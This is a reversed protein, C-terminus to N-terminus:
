QVVVTLNTPPAPRTGGTSAGYCANANFLLMGRDAAGPYNPDIASNVYCLQAPINNAHGGVGAINGGAVEPGIAPWPPTSWPTAWWNPQAPLFFSAPLTQSAPLANGYPSLSSPVEAAVWRVAANVTDYNGWRMTTGYAVTDNPFTGYYTSQDGSWGITYISHNSTTNGSGADKTSSPHTEYNTHYGATGLVNGILNQYRSYAFIVVPNTQETKGPPAAGGLTERGNWYNRFSTAFNSTGHVDDAMYGNGVNGEHLIFADGVSHHRSSNIQWQPDATYNQDVSFNYADVCGSCGEQQMTTPMHQFINNIVVNDSGNYTDTGYNSSGTGSSGYFYSNQVTNHAAQYFIVHEHPSNIDRVNSVWNGYGNRIRIGAAQGGNLATTTHDFSLNEIGDSTIPQVSSWWVQPNHGSSINPMYVGPSITATWPGSAPGSIATVRVAQQQGRGPRGNQSGPQQSCVDQTQCVYVQGTDSTDDTQDLFVMQGVVLAASNGTTGGVIGGITITTSSPAYGGTWSGVNAPSGCGACDNNDGNDICVDAQNGGCADGNTFVIFTQDPGAGRLTVNNKNRFVIGSSLAFTGAQLQVVQGSLCSAIASNITAASGSYPAITSCVATRNPIPGAGAASWDIARAPNLVGSWAQARVCYPIVMLVALWLFLLRERGV